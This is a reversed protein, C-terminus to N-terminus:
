SGVEGRSPPSVVTPQEGAQAHVVTPEIVTEVQLTNAIFCERHAIDLMRHVRDDEVDGVVTIRPRHEVRTIRMRRAAPMSATAEDDFAVVDVRSRAAVALFSLLLCSSASALLLQEPNLLAEDGRFAPDASLRLRATAPPASVEHERSYADYGEGTSGRWALTTRYSHDNM